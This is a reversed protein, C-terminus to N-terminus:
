EGDARIELAEAEAGAELMACQFEDVVHFWARSAEALKQVTPWHKRLLAEAREIGADIEAQLVDENAEIGYLRQALRWAIDADGGLPQFTEGTAIREASVGALHVTIQKRIDDANVASRFRLQVMGGILSEPVPVLSISQPSAGLLAGAIAHGSEHVAVRDYDDDSMM